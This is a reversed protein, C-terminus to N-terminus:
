TNYNCINNRQYLAKQDISRTILEVSERWINHAPVKGSHIAIGPRNVIYKSYHNKYEPWICNDFYGPCDPPNFNRLDRRRRCTDEDLTLFFRVDCKDYLIDSAFITFGELILIPVGSYESTDVGIDEISNLFEQGEAFNPALVGNSHGNTKANGPPTDLLTLVDEHMKKMDLAEMAEYNVHNEVEPLRIHGEYEDPFFYQDQHIIKSQWPFSRQILKSMTTKGGCTVGSVGIVFYSMKGGKLGTALLITKDQPKQFTINLTTFSSTQNIIPNFNFVGSPSHSKVSSPHPIARTNPM